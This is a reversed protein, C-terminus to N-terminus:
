FSFKNIKNNSYLIIKNVPKEMVSADNSLIVSNVSLPDVQVTGCSNIYRLSSISSELTSFPGRLKIETTLKQQPIEGIDIEDLKM